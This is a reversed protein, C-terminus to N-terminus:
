LEVDRSKSKVITNSGPAFSARAESVPTNDMILQVLWSATAAHLRSSNEVLTTDTLAVRYALFQGATREM